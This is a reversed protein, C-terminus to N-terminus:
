FHAMCRYGDPPFPRRYQHREMRLVAGVVCHHRCLNGGVMLITLTRAHRPNWLQSLAVDETPPRCRRSEYTSGVLLLCRCHRSFNHPSDARLCHGLGKDFRLHCRLHVSHRCSFIITLSINRYPFLHLESTLLSVGPVDFKVNKGKERKVHPILILSIVAIGVGVIAVFWFIWAWGAYQVLVAGILIGLVNGIAGASGFLAIARAQSAPEPFLQVILSLASPITLAGGIGGLARLVVLAVKQHTFGGILHTIGLIFAGAIFAPKPTYVDSIRGSQILTL